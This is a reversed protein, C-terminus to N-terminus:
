PGAVDWAAEMQVDGQKPAPIKTRARGNSSNMSPTIGAIWVTIVDSTSNSM